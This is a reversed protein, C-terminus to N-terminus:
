PYTNSSLAKPKGTLSGNEISKRSFPDTSGNQSKLQESSAKNGSSRGTTHHSQKELRDQLEQLKIRTRLDPANRIMRRLEISSVYARTKLSDIQTEFTSSGTRTSVRRSSTPMTSLGMLQRESVANSAPNLVSNAYLWDQVGANMGTSRRLPGEPPRMGTTMDGMATQPSMFGTLSGPCDDSMALKTGSPRAFVPRKSAEAVSGTTGVKTSGNGSLDPANSRGADELADIPVPLWGIGPQFCLHLSGKTTAGVSLSRRLNGARGTKRADTKSTPLDGPLETGPSPAEDSPAVQGSQETSTTGAVSNGTNAQSLVSPSATLCALIAPIYLRRFQNM